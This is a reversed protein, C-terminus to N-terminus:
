LIALTQPAQISLRVIDTREVTLFPHVHFVALQLIHFKVQFYLKQSKSNVNRRSHPSGMLKLKAVVMPVPVPVPVAWVAVAPITLHPIAQAQAQAQAPVAQTAQTAQIAQIAAATSQTSVTRM